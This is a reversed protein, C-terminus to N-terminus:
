SNTYRWLNAQTMFHILNWSEGFYGISTYYAGTPHAKYLGGASITAAVANAISSNTASLIYWSKTTFIPNPYINPYGAGNNHFREASIFGRVPFEAEYVGKLKYGAFTVFQPNATWLYDWYARHEFRFADYKHNVSYDNSLPDSLQNNSGNVTVWDPIIGAGVQTRLTADGSATAISYSGNRALDWFTDGTFDKFKKFSGPSQYSPNIQRTSGSPYNWSGADAIKGGQFDIFSFTKLDALVQTAVASYNIAGASGWKEHAWILAQAIDIDADPASSPDSISDNLPDAIWSLHSPCVTLGALSRKLVTQNYNHVSDFTAQDNLQAAMLMAYAQSESVCQPRSIGENPFGGDEKVVCGNSRVYRAKWGAWVDAVKGAATAPVTPYVYDQLLKVDDLTFQGTANGSYFEGFLVNDFHKATFDFNAYSQPPNNYWMMPTKYTSTQNVDTLSLVSDTLYLELDYETGKNFSVYVRKTMTTTSNAFGGAGAIKVLLNYQGTTGKYAPMMRVQVFDDLSGNPLKNWIHIFTNENALNMGTSVNLKFKMRRILQGETNANLGMQQGGVGQLNFQLKGGTASVTSTGVPSTVQAFPTTSTGDANLITNGSQYTSTPPVTTPPTTPPTTTGAGSGGTSGTVPTTTFQQVTQTVPNFFQLNGNSDVTLQVSAAAGGLPNNFSLKDIKIGGNRDLYISKSKSVPM